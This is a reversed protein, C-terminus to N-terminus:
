LLPQARNRCFDPSIGNDQGGVKRCLAHGFVNHCLGDCVKAPDVGQDGVCADIHRSLHRGAVRRHPVPHQGHIHRRHEAHRAGYQRAHDRPPRAVDHDGARDRAMLHEAFLRDIRGRFVGHLGKDVAQASLNRRMADPHPRHRRAGHQVRQPPVVVLVPNGFPDGGAVAQSGLVHGFRHHEHQRARRM